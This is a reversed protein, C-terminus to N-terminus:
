FANDRYQALLGNNQSHHLSVVSFSFPQSFRLQVKTQLCVADGPLQYEQAFEHVVRSLLDSPNSFWLPDFTVPLRGSQLSSCYFQMRSKLLRLVPILETTDYVKLLALLEQWEAPLTNGRIVTMVRGFSASFPVDGKLFDLMMKLSGHVAVLARNHNCLEEFMLSLLSQSHGHKQINMDDLEAEDLPSPVFKQIKSIVTEYGEWQTPSKPSSTTVVLNIDQLLQRCCSYEMYSDHFASQMMGHM